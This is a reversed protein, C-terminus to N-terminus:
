LEKKVLYEQEFGLHKLKRLWGKRGGGFIRKCGFHKAFQEISPLMLQLEEFKGGLFLINLVKVRPFEVIETIMVSDKGPWLHFMGLRIKEKIDSLNYMDQHKLARIIHHELREFELEWDEKSQQPPPSHETTQSVLKINQEM